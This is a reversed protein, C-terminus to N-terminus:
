ENIWLSAHWLKKGRKLLITKDHLLDATGLRADAAVKKGNVAVAGNKLFERAERKSNALSTETLLDLLAMGDGSLASRAHTSHPVDAFVEDLMQADLERLDGKGFLAQSASQVRALEDAGHLASTVEEGLRQQALRLHPSAAHEGEIAEIEERTL